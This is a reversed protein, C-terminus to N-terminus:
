KLGWWEDVCSFLQEAVSIVLRLVDFGGKLLFGSDEHISKNGVTQRTRRDTARSVISCGMSCTM